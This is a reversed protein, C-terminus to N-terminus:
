LSVPQFNVPHWKMQRTVVTMRETVYGHQPFAAGMEVLFNTLRAPGPQAPKTLSMKMAGVIMQEMVFGDRPSVVIIRASLNIM